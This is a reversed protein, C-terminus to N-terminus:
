GLLEDLEEFEERLDYANHELIWGWSGLGDGVVVFAPTCDCRWSMTHDRLDNNPLIHMQGTPGYKTTWDKEDFV